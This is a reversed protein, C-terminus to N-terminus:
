LPLYPTIDHGLARLERLASSSIDALEPRAPLLVTDVEPALRRNLSALREEYDLDASGRVGRVMAVAGLAKAADATLGGWTMVEARLESSVARRVQEEVAEVSGAPHKASNVGICVVVRDFMRLARRLIDMHGITFPNFSGPMLALREGPGAPRVTCVGHQASPDSNSYTM